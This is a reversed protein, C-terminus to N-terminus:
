KSVPKLTINDNYAKALQEIDKNWQVFKSTPLHTNKILISKKYVLKGPLAQYQIHFEYDPNVINLPAPLNDAKYNAPITLETEKSLNIKYDFWYDHKREGIKIGANQFEKRPDLDIYYDKSFSSVANKFNLDYSVTLDKDPTEMSSLRLNNIGYDNNNNSLYRTMAEDTKEKKISNLGALVEEKDEGKWLHNVSGTLATGDITLKSIEHDFNQSPAAIPIHALIYKDGNEILVQRGQIREAYDNLGLYTETADLF